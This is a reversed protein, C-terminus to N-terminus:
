NKQSPNYNSSFKKRMDKLLDNIMEASIKINNTRSSKIKLKIESSSSKSLLYVKKCANFYTRPVVGLLPMVKKSPAHKSPTM